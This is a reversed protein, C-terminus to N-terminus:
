GQGLAIAADIDDSALAARQDRNLNVPATPVAAQAIEPMVDETGMSPVDPVNIPAQGKVNTSSVIKDMDAQEVDSVVYSGLNLGADSNQYRKNQYEQQAGPEGVPSMASEFGAGFLWDSFGGPNELVGQYTKFEDPFEELRDGTRMQKYFDRLINTYAARKVAMSATDDIVQSYNKLVNPSSLFDATYRALLGAIVPAPGFVAAGGGVGAAAGFSFTKFGTRIGGLAIRRKVLAFPNGIDQGEIKRAIEVLNKINDKVVKGNLGAADIMAEFGPQDFGINQLLADPDVAYDTVMIRKPRTGRASPADVMLDIPNNRRLSNKLGENLWTRTVSDFAEQGILEKVQNIAQPTIKKSMVINYLEDSYNWGPLEPGANFMNEDILKFKKAAQSKYIPSMRAFVSNARLLARKAVEATAKDEASLGQKWGAFNNLDTTIAKRANALIDAGVFNAGFEGRMNGYIRNIEKQLGRMQLPNVYDPLNGLTEVIFREMENMQPNYTEYNNLQIKYQDIREKLMNGIQKTHSTGIFPQSIKNATKEFSDYLLNNVYSFRNYRDQAAKHMFMGVDTMHQIPAYAELRVQAEIAEDLNNFGYEKLEKNFANKETKDLLKYQARYFDEASGILGSQTELAQKTKVLARLQRDKMISGILPFVGIIKGFGKVANGAMDGTAAISIGIPIGYRDALKSMGSADGGLGLIKGLVPRLYSALPGLGAAMTTFAASNRMEVLARMGPDETDTPKEIGATLRILDNIFDYSAGAMGRGLAAGAVVGGGSSMVKSFLSGPVKAAGPLSKSAELAMAPLSGLLEGGLMFDAQGKPIFDSIFEGINFYQALAYENPRRFADFGEFQDLPNNKKGEDMYSQLNNVFYAYPDDAKKGEETVRYQGIAYNVFREQNANYVDMSVPNMNEQTRFKNVYNLINEAEIENRPVFIGEQSLAPKDDVREEVKVYLPYNLGTRSPEILVNVYGVPTNFDDQPATTLESM